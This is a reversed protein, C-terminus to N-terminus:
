PVVAQALTLSYTDGATDAVTGIESLSFRTVSTPVNFTLSLIESAGVGLNGLAIPLSPGTFLVTGSGALTRPTIQSFTLNQAAGTGTNNVQLALTLTTGALSQGTVRASISPRGVVLSSVTTSNNLLNPDSLSSTVSATNMLTGVLTPAVMLSIQITGGSVLTGLACSVPQTGLCVTGAPTVSVLSAGGQIMDNLVVNLAPDPGLNTVTIQYALNNGLIVTGALMAIQLDAEGAAIDSRATDLVRPNGLSLSKVTVTNVTGAAGAPVNVPVNIVSSAGPALAIQRPVGSLNAWAQTATATLTYTDAVSGTNVITFALTNSTGLPLGANGPGLVSVGYFTKIAANQTATIEQV